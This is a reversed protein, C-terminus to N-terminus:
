QCIVIFCSVLKPPLDGLIIRCGCKNPHGCPLLRALFDQVKTTLLQEWGRSARQTQGDEKTFDDGAIYERWTAKEGFKYHLRRSCPAFAQNKYTRSISSLLILSCPFTKNLIKIPSPGKMRSKFKFQQRKIPRAILFLFFHRTCFNDKQAFAYLLIKLSVFISAYNLKFNPRKLVNFTVPEM